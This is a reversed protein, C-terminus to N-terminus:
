VRRSLASIQLESAPRALEQRVAGVARDHHLHEAGVLSGALARIEAQLLLLPCPRVACLSPTPDFAFFSTSIYNGICALTLLMTFPADHARLM